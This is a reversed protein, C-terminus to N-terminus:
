EIGILRNLEKKDTTEYIKSLKDYESDIYRIFMNYNFEIDSLINNVIQQSHMNQAFYKANTVIADLRLNPDEISEYNPILMYKEFTRFGLKKLYDLYGPQAAVIFPHRNIITKWIKESPLRVGDDYLFDSESVISIKSNTFIKSDYMFSYVITSDRVEVKDPNKVCESIFKHYEEDSLIDNIYKRSEIALQDNIYFSWILNRMSKKDKWFRYILGIRHIKQPKGTLCLINKSNFSWSMNNTIKPLSHFINKYTRLAWTDIFKVYSKDVFIPDEQCSNLIVNFDYIKESSLMNEIIPLVIKHTRQNNSRERCLTLTLHFKENNHKTQSENITNILIKKWEDSTDISNYFENSLEIVERIKQNDM